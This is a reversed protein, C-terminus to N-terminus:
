PEKKTTPPYRKTVSRRRWPWGLHDRADALFREKHARLDLDDQGDPPTFGDELKCPPEKWAAKICPEAVAKVEAVLREYARALPPSEISLWGIHFDIEEQAEHFLAVIEYPSEPNRRRVRYYLEEWSVAARYASSYLTRLRDRRDERQKWWIGLLTVFAAVIAAVPIWDPIGSGTDPTAGVSAGAAVMEAPSIL